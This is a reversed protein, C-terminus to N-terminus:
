ATKARRRPPKPQNRKLVTGVEKRLSALKAPDDALALVLDTFQGILDAGRAIRGDESAPTDKLASKGVGSTAFARVDTAIERAAMAQEEIRAAFQLLAAPDNTAQVNSVRVTLREGPEGIDIETIGLTRMLKRLTLVEINSGSEALSLTRRSVGALPALKKQSLQRRERARQLTIGFHEDVM